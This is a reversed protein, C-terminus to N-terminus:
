QIISRHRAWTEGESTVLGNGLWRKAQALGVGKEYNARQIHLVHQVYDPHSVLHLIQTGMRFRAIDGFENRLRMVFSLRDRRIEYLEGIWSHSRPGPAIKRGCSHM